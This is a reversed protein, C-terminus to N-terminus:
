EVPNQKTREVFAILEQLHEEDHEITSGAIWQWLPANGAWRYRGAEFLDRESFEQVRRITQDRINYFDELTAELDRDRFNQYWQQNIEDDSRESFQLTTPTQGRRIQFLMTILEAEWLTLHVLLDKVSWNGITGPEGLQDEDLWDLLDLIATHSEELRDLLKEKNM